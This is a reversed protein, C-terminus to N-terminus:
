RFCFKGEDLTNKLFDHNKLINISESTSKCHKSQKKVDPFLLDKVNELMPFYRHQAISEM